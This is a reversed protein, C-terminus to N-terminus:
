KKTKDEEVVVKVSATAGDVQIAVTTEGPDLPSIEGSGTVLVIKKDAATLTPSRDTIPKGNKRFAKVTVKAPSDTDKLKIEKPEVEIRDVYIVQVPVRAEIDGVRAIVETDGDAVPTVLGKNDVKAISGDGVSWQVRAKVARVGNRAMCKAEMWQQNNAQKFVVETPALEIYDIKECGCVLVAAATLLFPRM